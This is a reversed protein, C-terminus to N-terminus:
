RISNLEINNNKQKNYIRKRCYQWTIFSVLAKIATVSVFSLAYGELSSSNSFFLYLLVFSLILNITNYPFRSVADIPNRLLLYVSEFVISLIIIKSINASPLFEQSFFLRIFIDMGFWLIAIAALSLALYVFSLQKVLRDAQRFNNQAISSSVHPLLVMGTYALFPTIMSTLTLGTAFFSSSKLGLNQNIIVLPFAAFLFLFFDGVMRPLGYKFLITFQPSVSNKWTIPQDRFLKNKKWEVVFSVMVYALTLTSWANLLIFLDSGLALACLAIITQVAVQSVGFKIFADSGRYYAFLYSSFAISIAFLIASFYLKLSNSGTMVPAWKSAMVACGITCIVVIASVVLLSAVVTSKAKKFDKQAIHASLYRPLAIGIGCLM